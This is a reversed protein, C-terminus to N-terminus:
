SRKRRVRRAALSLLGTSLLLLSGPEPVATIDLGQGPQYGYIRGRIKTGAPLSINTVRVQGWGSADVGAYVTAGMGGYEYQQNTFTLGGPPIPGAQSGSDNVVGSDEYLTIWGGFIVDYGLKFNYNLIASYDYRGADMHVPAPSTWSITGGSGVKKNIDISWQYTHPFDATAQPVITLFAIFPLVIASIRIKMVWGEKDRDAEKYM